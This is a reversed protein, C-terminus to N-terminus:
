ADGQYAPWLLDVARGVSDRSEREYILEHGIM